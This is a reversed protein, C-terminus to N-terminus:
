APAQYLSEVLALYAEPDPHGNAKAMALVIAKEQDTM